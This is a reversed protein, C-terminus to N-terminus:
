FDSSVLPEAGLSPCGKVATNLNGLFLANSETWQNPTEDFFIGRVSLGDDELRWGAYIMVDELVNSYQRNAYATSVYGVVAVNSYSNLKKIDRKYNSDLSQGPGNNPNVVVIFKVGPYASISNAETLEMILIELKERKSSQGRFYGKGHM